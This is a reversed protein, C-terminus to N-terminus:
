DERPDSEIRAIADGWAKTLLDDQVADLDPTGV